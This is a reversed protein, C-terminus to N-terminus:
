NKIMLFIIKFKDFTHDVKETDQAMFYKNVVSKQFLNM